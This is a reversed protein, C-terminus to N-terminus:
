RERYSSVKANQYEPRQLLERFKKLSHFPIDVNLQNNALWKPVRGGVDLLLRYYIVLTGDEKPTFLWLVRIYPMRVAGKKLPYGNPIMLATYSVAKTASDQKRTRTLVADRDTIPWPLGQRFYFIIVGPDKEELMTFEKIRYMWQTIKKTDEFLAIASDLSTKVTTVGQFERTDWGQVKRTHVQIGEKDKKLEWRFEKTFEEAIMPTLFLLTM